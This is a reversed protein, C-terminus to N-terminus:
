PYVVWGPDVRPIYVQNGGGLHGFNAGAPGECITTGAPVRIRVLNQATNGPPLAMDMKVQLPGSPQSRSWWPGMQKATGGYVRFLTIEGQTVTQTYNGGRFNNAVNPPLPGQTHPGFRTSTAASETAAAGAAASRMIGIASASSGAAISVMRAAGVTADEFREWGSTLREEAINVGFIGGSAQNAGVIEGLVSIVYDVQTATRGQIRAANDEVHVARQGVAKVTRIPHILADGIEVFQEITKIPYYMLTYFIEEVSWLGM